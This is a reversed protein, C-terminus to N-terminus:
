PIHCFDFFAHSFLRVGQDRWLDDEDSAHGVEGQHFSDLHVMKSQEELGRKLNAELRGSM